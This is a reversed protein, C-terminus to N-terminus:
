GDTIIVNFRKWDNRYPTKNKSDMEPIQYKLYWSSKLIKNVWRQVAPIGKFIHKVMDEVSYFNMYADHQSNYIKQRQSDRM